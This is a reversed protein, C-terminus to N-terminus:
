SYSRAIKDHKASNSSLARKDYHKEKFFHVVDFKPKASKKIKAKKGKKVNKPEAVLSQQQVRPAVTMAPTMVQIAPTVPDDAPIEKTAFWNKVTNLICRGISKDHLDKHGLFTHVEKATYFIGALIRCALIIQPITKSLVYKHLFTYAKYTLMNSVQTAMNLIVTSAKGSFLPLLPVGLFVTAIVSYAVLSVAFSVVLLCMRLAISEEMTLIRKFSQIPALVCRCLLRPLMLLTIAIDLVLMMIGNKNKLSDQYQILALEAILIPWEVLLRVLSQLPHVIFGLGVIYLIVELLFVGEAQETFKEKHEETSQIAPAKKKPVYLYAEFFTYSEANDEKKRYEIDFIDDTAKKVISCKDNRM